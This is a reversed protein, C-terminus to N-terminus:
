LLVGVFYVFWLCVVVGHTCGFGGGEGMRVQNFLQMMVFTNFVMTYHVTAGPVSGGDVYGLVAPSDVVVWYMVGLQFLTQGIINKLM